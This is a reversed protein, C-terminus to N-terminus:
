LDDHGMAWMAGALKSHRVVAMKPLALAPIILRRSNMV